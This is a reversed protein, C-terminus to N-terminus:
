QTPAKWVLLTSDESASILHANDSTIALSSIAAVHGRLTDLRRGDADWVSITGDTGGAFITSGDGTCALSTVVGGHEMEAMLEGTALDWRRVMGDRSASLAEAMGGSFTVAEVWGRHDALVAKQTGEHLDWLRVTGDRGGSLLLTGDWSVAIALVGGRHGQVGDRDAGIVRLPDSGKASWMRMTGDDASTLLAPMTDSTSAYPMYVVSRIYGFHGKLERLLRGDSAAFERIIGDKFGAAIKQGDPSAALAWAEQMAEDIRLVQQGNLMDWVRITSDSSSSLVRGDPMCTVARVALEHRDWSLRPSGDTISREVLMNGGGYSLVWQRDPSVLIYNVHGSHAFWRALVEGDKVLRNWRRISGDRSGTLLEDPNAGYAVSTVAHGHHGTFTNLLEYGPVVQWETAKHRSGVLLRQRDYSLVSSRTHTYYDNLWEHLLEGTRLDYHAIVPDSGAAGHIFASHDDPGYIAQRASHLKCEIAVLEEATDLRWEKITPPSAGCTLVRTEDASYYVSSLSRQGTAWERIVEAQEMDWEYVSGSSDCAVMKQGDATLHFGSLSGSSIKHRAQRDGTSMDWIDISNGSAVVVRGDPLYGLDGVSDYRLRLSGLRQIAGEPLDDGFLDTAAQAAVTGTCALTITIALCCLRNV